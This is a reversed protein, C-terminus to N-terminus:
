KGQKGLLKAKGRSNPKKRTKTQKQEPVVTVGLLSALCSNGILCDWLDNNPKGPNQKWEIVQNGTKSIVTLPDEATCHEAFMRHRHPEDEFLTISKTSGVQAILREATWTKWFNTDILLERVGFARTKPPQLRSHVGLQDRKGSAFQQWPLQNAGIYKGISPHIMGRYQSESCYRRVATSSESYGADVALMQLGLTAGDARYLQRGFLDDALVSLGEYTDALQDM